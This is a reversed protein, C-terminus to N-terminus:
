NNYHTFTDCPYHKPLPFYIVIPHTQEQLCIQLTDKRKFSIFSKQTQRSTLNCICNMGENEIQAQM